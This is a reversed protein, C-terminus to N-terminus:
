PMPHATFFGVVEKGWDYDVPPSCSVFTDGTAMPLCHGALIGGVGTSTYDQSIFELVNGTSSTWRQRWYRSGEAGAITEPGTMMHATAFQRALTQAAEYGGGISDRKGYAFLV